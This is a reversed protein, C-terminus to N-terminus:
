YINFEWLQPEGLNISGQKMQIELVTASAPWTISGVSSGVPTTAAPTSINSITSGTLVASATIDFIRIDVNSSATNNGVLVAFTGPNGAVATGPWPFLVYRTFTTGTPQQM